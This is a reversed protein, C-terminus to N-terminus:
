KEKLPTPNKRRENKALVDKITKYLQKQDIPKSILAAVKNKISSTITFNDDHYVSFLIVPLHLKMEKLTDLVVEGDIGSMNFDTIVLDFDIERARALGEEGSYATTVDYEGTKELSLKIIACLDKEDDILLLRKKIM